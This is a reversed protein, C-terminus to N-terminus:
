RGLYVPPAKKDNSSRRTEKFDLYSKVYTFISIVVFLLYIFAILKAIFPRPLQFNEVFAVILLLATFALGILSIPPFLESITQFIFFPVNAFFVVTFLKRFEILREFFIQFVYYFFLSSISIVILTLIPMLFFGYLVRGFAQHILGSIMGCISTILLVSILIRRWEWDPLKKINDVPNRLYTSFQNKIESLDSKISDNM